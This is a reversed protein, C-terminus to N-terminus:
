KGVVPHHRQFGRGPHIQARLRPQRGSPQLRVDVAMADSLRLGDSVAVDFQRSRGVVLRRMRNGHPGCNLPAGLLLLVVLVILIIGLV